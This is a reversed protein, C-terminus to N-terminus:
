LSTVSYVSSHETPPLQYVPVIGVRLYLPFALSSTIRPAQFSEATKTRTLASNMRTFKRDTHVKM